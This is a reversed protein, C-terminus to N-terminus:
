VTEGSEACWEWDPLVTPTRASHVILSVFLSPPVCSIAAAPQPSICQPIALQGLGMSSLIPLALVRGPDATGIFCLIEKLPRSIPLKGSSDITFQNAILLTAWGGTVETCLARARPLYTDDCSCM